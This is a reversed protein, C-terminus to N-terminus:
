CAPPDRSMLRTRRWQDLAWKQSDHSLATEAEQASIWQLIHDDESGPGSEAVVEALYFYCEKRYYRQESRKYVREDARGILGLVRIELGTEELVERVAADETTEDAEVAGGPLFLGKPTRVTAILDGDRIIVAYGGIRATYEVGETCVGFVPGESTM